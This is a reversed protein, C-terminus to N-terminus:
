SPSRANGANGCIPDEAMIHGDSLSDPHRAGPVGAPRVALPRHDSGARPSPPANSVGSAERLAPRRGQCAIMITVPEGAFDAHFIQVEGRVAEPAHIAVCHHM